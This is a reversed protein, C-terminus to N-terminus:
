NSLFNATDIAPGTKIDINRRWYIVDIPPLNIFRNFANECSFLIGYM